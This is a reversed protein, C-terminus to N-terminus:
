GDGGTLYALWAQHHAKNAQERTMGILRWFTVAGQGIKTHCARTAPHTDVWVGGAGRSPDHSVECPGGTCDWARGVGGCVCPQDRTFMVFEDSHFQLAWLKRRRAENRVRLRKERKLSTGSPAQLRSRSQLRKHRKLRTRKV